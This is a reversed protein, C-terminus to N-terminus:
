GIRGKPYNGTLFKDYGHIKNSMKVEEKNL